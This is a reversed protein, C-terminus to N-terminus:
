IVLVQRLAPELDPYRFRYGLELARAPLARQGNLLLAEAMEGLALRLVIGPVPLWSPRGMVKGIMESFARNTAPNPATGNVPGRAQENDIAFRILGVLDDLHIWSIWQRGSGVPGGAFFRFPLLMKPLAGGQRGLVLGTRILVVRMGLDEARRAEAEWAQCVQSLFDRGPGGAETLDEDGRPGYYGVASGSILVDPKRGARSLAEVLARTGEVRSRRIREKQEPTWRGAAISEGALNVVAKAGDLAGDLAGEWGPAMEVSSGGAPWTAARAGSPVRPSSSRTLIVVEHGDKLLSATLARGIFGTGGTIVVKM